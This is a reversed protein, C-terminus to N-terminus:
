AGCPKPDETDVYMEFLKQLGELQKLELILSDLREAVCGVLLANGFNMDDVLLLDRLRDCAASIERSARLERTGNRSPVVPTASKGVRNAGNRPTGSVKESM